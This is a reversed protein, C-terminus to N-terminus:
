TEVMKMLLIAIVADRGYFKLQFYYLLMSQCLSVGYHAKFPRPAPPPPFRDCMCHETSEQLWVFPVCDGVRMWRLQLSGTWLCYGAALNELALNWVNKPVLSNSSWFILWWINVSDYLLRCSQSYFVFEVRLNECPCSPCVIALSLLTQVLNSDQFDIECLYWSPFM